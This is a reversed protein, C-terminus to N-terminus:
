GAVVARIVHPGPGADILIGAAGTYRAAIDALGLDEIGEFGSNRLLASLDTPDFHSLWPEGIAAARAALEQIEARRGPPFNELPESYDFVVEAG